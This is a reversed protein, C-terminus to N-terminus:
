KIQYPLVSCEYGHQSLHEAMARAGPPNWSHITVTEPVVGQACMWKVLDLGTEESQGRLQLVSILEDADEPLEINDYGLDHDLSIESVEGTLLLHQAVENTRAWVWGDPAPRVDDHWVKM